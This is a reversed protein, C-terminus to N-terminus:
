FLKSFELIVLTVRFIGYLGFYEEFGLFSWFLMSFELIVFIVGSVGYHGFYYCVGLIVLIVEFVGFILIVESGLFHCFYKSMNFHGFYVPFALIVLIIV